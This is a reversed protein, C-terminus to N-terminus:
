SSHLSCSWEVPRQIGTTPVPNKRGSPSDKTLLHVQMELGDSFGEISIRAIRSWPVQSSLRSM